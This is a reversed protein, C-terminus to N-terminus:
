LKKEEGGHKKDLQWVFVIIQAVAQYLEPPIETGLPLSVLTQALVPDEHIPVQEQEAAAILRAAIDGRGAAIVVPADQEVADYKLAIALKIPEQM